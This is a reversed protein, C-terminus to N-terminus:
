CPVDFTRKSVQYIYKDIDSFDKLNILKKSNKKWFQDFNKINDM